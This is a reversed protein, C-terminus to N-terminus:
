FLLRKSFFVYVIWHTIKDNVGSGKPPKHYKSTVCHLPLRLWTTFKFNWNFKELNNKNVQELSQHDIRGKAKESLCTQFTQLTRILSSTGESCWRMKWPSNSGMQGLLMELVSQHFASCIALVPNAINQTNRKNKGGQQKVTEWNTLTWAEFIIAQVTTATTLHARRM